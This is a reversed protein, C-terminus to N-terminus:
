FLFTLGNLKNSKPAATKDATMNVGLKELEEILYINEPNHFFEAIGGAVKPGIDEMEQLQEVTKEKLDLIHNINKALTKATTEGVYRIGLGYIVRNVPQTKSAEIATRMKEASKEGFGEMTKIKEFDLRYIDAINKLLGED